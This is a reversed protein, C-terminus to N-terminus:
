KFIDRAPTWDKISGDKRAQRVERLAERLDRVVVEEPVVDSEQERQLYRKLSKAMKNIIDISDVNSIQGMLEARAANIDM